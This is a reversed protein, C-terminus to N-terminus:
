GSAGVMGFVNKGKIIRLKIQWHCKIQYETTKVIYIVDFTDEDTKNISAFDLSTIAEFNLVKFGNENTQRGAFFENLFQGTRGESMEDHQEKKYIRDMLSLLVTKKHNEAASEFNLLFQNLEKSVKYKDGSSNLKQVSTCSFILLVTIFLYLHKMQKKKLYPVIIIM